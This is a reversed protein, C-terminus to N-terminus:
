PTYHSPKLKLKRCNIVLITNKAVMNDAQVDSPVSGNRTVHPLHVRCHSSHLTRECHVLSSLLHPCREVTSQSINFPGATCLIGLV